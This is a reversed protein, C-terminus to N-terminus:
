VVEAESPLSRISILFRQSAQIHREMPYGIMLWISSKSVSALVVFFLIQKKAFVMKTFFLVFLVFLSLEMVELYSRSM